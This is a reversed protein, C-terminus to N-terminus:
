IVEKLPLAVKVWEIIEWEGDIYTYWSNIDLGVYKYFEGAPGIFNTGSPVDNVDSM